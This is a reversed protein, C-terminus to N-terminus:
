SKGALAREAADDEADQLAKAAAKEEAEVRAEEAKRASRAALIYVCWAQQNSSMDAGTEDFMKEILWGLKPDDWRKGKNPGDKLFVPCATKPKSPMSPMSPMSPGSPELEGQIVECTVPTAAGTAATTPGAPEGTTSRAADVFPREAEGGNAVDALTRGPKAAPRELSRVSEVELEDMMSLGCIALTVRRKAKTEGKMIANALNEGKLGEIPVAGISEDCRGNPLTARATVVYLGDFRERSVISVSVTHLQRLQDTAARRAYLIMKGQLTLYEFPQTLPNLGTSECVRRYYEIRQDPGLGALNGAILVNELGEISPSAKALAAGQEIRALDGM